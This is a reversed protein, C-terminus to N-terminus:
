PNKEEVFNEIVRGGFRDTLKKSIDTLAQEFGKQKMYSCFTCGTIDIKGHRLQISEVLPIFILIIFM